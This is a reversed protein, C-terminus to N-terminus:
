IASKYRETEYVKLVLKGAASKRMQEVSEAMHKPCMEVSPLRAGYGKPLVVPGSLSAFTLDAATFTDGCIFPRGDALAEDVKTFVEAIKSFSIEKADKKGCGMLKYLTRQILPLTLFGAVRELIPAGQSLLSYIGKHYLVHCYAWRRVHPGLVEDFLDEWECIAERKDAPYLKRKEDQILTDTFALIDSSDHLVRTEEGDRTIILKPLSTGGGLKKVFLLHFGPYHRDETLSSICRQLAWRAKECYHSPGLSILHFHSM